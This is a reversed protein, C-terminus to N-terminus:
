ASYTSPRRFGPIKSFRSGGGPGNRGQHQSLEEERRPKMTRGLQLINLLKTSIETEQLLKASKDETLWVAATIFAKLLTPNFLYSCRDQFNPFLHSGSSRSHCDKIRYGQACKLQMKEACKNRVFLCVLSSRASFRMNNRCCRHAKYLYGNHLRCKTM